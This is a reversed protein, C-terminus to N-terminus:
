KSASVPPHMYTLELGAQGVYHTGSWGLTCLGQRMLVFFHYILKAHHYLGTGVGSQPRQSFSMILLM